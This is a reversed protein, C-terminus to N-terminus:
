GDGTVDGALIVADGDAGTVVATAVIAPLGSVPGATVKRQALEALAAGAQHDEVLVDVGGARGPAQDEVDEPTKVRGM